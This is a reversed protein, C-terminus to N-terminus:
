RDASRSPRRGFRRSAELRAIATRRDVNQAAMCLAIREEGLREVLAIREAPTLAAVRKAQERALDTAVKSRMGGNYAGERRHVEGAKVRSAHGCDAGGGGRAARRAGGRRIPWACGSFRWCCGSLSERPMSSTPFSNFM